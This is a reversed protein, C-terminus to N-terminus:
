GVAGISSAACSPTAWHARMVQERRSRPDKWVIEYAGPRVRLLAAGKGYSETIFVTDNLVVPTAANVSELKSSKWPFHFDIEGSAPEFGVLGGRAFWFGWRRGDVRAIVPSAYSALEDTVSYRVEGTMKDFAV